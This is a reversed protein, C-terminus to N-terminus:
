SGRTFAPFKATARLPICGEFIAKTATGSDNYFTEDTQPPAENPEGASTISSMAHVSLLDPEQFRLQLVEQLMEGFAESAAVCAFVQRDVHAPLEGIQGFLAHLRDGEVRTHSRACELLEQTLENPVVVLHAIAYLLEDGSLM